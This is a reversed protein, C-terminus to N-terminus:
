NDYTDESEEDSLIQSLKLNKPNNIKNGSSNSFVYNSDPERVEDSPTYTFTYRKNQKKRSEILLRRQRDPQITEGVCNVVFERFITDDLYNKNNKDFYYNRAEILNSVISYYMDKEKNNDNVRYKIISNLGFLLTLQFTGLRIKYKKHKEVTNSEANFKIATVDFFPLCKKNNNIVRAIIADGIYVETSHGTLDFFPYFEFYELKDQPLSVNSKLNDILKLCDERYNVSIFEFYPIHTLSIKNKNNEIIKSEYIYYNYAYLGILIISENNILFSFVTDLASKITVDNQKIKIERKADTFPYHQQLLYFRRYSKLNDDFRWFSILPDTMMKIYDIFMFHPHVITMGNIEKFPLKNYVNRPVYSLDCYTFQNVSLSYSEQHMAERGSVYKYGKKHLLNCLKMLDVIPEPSYFDIDAIKTDTYIADKKNKAKILENLAFGGYIKRKTSKVFDLIINHVERMEDLTPELVKQRQEEVTAKIKDWNESLLEIDGKHYLSM